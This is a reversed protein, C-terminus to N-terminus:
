INEKNRGNRARLEKTDPPNFGAGRGRDVGHVRRGFANLQGLINKLKQDSRDVQLYGSRSPNLHHLNNPSPVNRPFLLLIQFLFGSGNVPVTVPVPHASYVM